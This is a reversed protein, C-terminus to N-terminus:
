IKETILTEVEAIASNWAYGMEHKCTSGKYVDNDDLAISACKPLAERLSELAQKAGRKEAESIQSSIFSKIAEPVMYARVRDLPKDDEDCADVWHGWLGDQRYFFDDDFEKEWGAPVTPSEPKRETSVKSDWNCHVCRYTEGKAFMEHECKEGATPQKCNVVHCSCMPNVCIGHMGRSCKECCIPTADNQINPDGRHLEVEQMIKWAHELIDEGEPTQLIHRVKRLVIGDEKPPRISDPYTGHKFCVEDKDCQECKKGTPSETAYRPYNKGCDGCKGHVIPQGNFVKIPCECICKEGAVSQMSCHTCDAYGRCSECCKEEIPEKPKM